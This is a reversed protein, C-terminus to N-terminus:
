LFARVSILLGLFVLNWITFVELYRLKKEPYKEAVQKYSILSAMSAILTGLGGLNTGVIIEEWNETFNSMFLAAPVNSIVQSMSIAALIEHGTIIRVALQRFPEYRNMNGIFIFFLLFTLLLSYDVKAFLRKDRIMVAGSIILLLVLSPLKGAVTQMCILFLVGYYVTERTNPKKRIQEISKEQSKEVRRGGSFGAIACLFLGLGSVVTYPFMLKIFKFLSMGSLQYLYLNQPNGMPTMMSGLNAGITMMTITLCVRDSMGAMNLIMLAFPVFTILSVDNTIMMSGFFCLFTLLLVIGRESHMKDLLCEGVYRFVGLSGMGAVVLMLCFLVILTGMNQSFYNLYAADPKVLCCSLGALIFSATLVPEKKIWEGLKMM